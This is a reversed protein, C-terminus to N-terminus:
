KQLRLFIRRFEDLLKEREGEIHIEWTRGKPDEAFVPGEGKIGVFRQRRVTMRNDPHTVHYLFSFGHHVGGGCSKLSDWKPDTIQDLLARDAKLGNLNVLLCRFHRAVIEYAWPDSRIPTYGPDPVRNAANAWMREGAVIVRDAISPDMLWACAVDAMSGHCLVLLPKSPTATKAAALIQLAADSRQVQTKAPVKPSPVKLRNLVGLKPTPIRRPALKRFKRTAEVLKEFYRQQGEPNEKFGCSTQLGRLDIEGRLAMAMAYYDGSEQASFRSSYIIPSGFGFPLGPFHRQRGRWVPEAFGETRTPRKDKRTRLVQGRHGVVHGKRNVLHVKGSDVRARLEKAPSLQLEVRLDHTLLRGAETQLSFPPEAERYTDEPFPVAIHAYIRGVSFYLNDRGLVEVSTARDIDITAGGKLRVSTCPANAGPSTLIRDGSLLTLDKALELRQLGEEAERILVGAKGAVAALVRGVEVPGTEAVAPKGAAKAEDPDFEEVDLNDPLPARGEFMRLQRMVFRQRAEIFRAAEEAEAVAVAREAKRQATVYAPEESAPAAPKPRPRRRAKVTEIANRELELERLQEVIIQHRRKEQQTLPRDSPSLWLALLGTVVLLVAAASLV